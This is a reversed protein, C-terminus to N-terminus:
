VKKRKININALKDKEYERENTIDKAAIAVKKHLDTYKRYQKLKEDQKRLTQDEQLRIRAKLSVMDSESEMKRVTELRDKEVKRNLDHMNRLNQYFIEKKAEEAKNFNEAEQLQSQLVRARELADNKEAEDKRM